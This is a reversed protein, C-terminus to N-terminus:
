QEEEPATMKDNCKPCTTQWTFGRFSCNVCINSASGPKDFSFTPRSVLGMGAASSKLAWKEAKPDDIVVKGNKDADYKKGGPLEVGVVNSPVSLTTM